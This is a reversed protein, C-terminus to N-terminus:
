RRAPPSVRHRQSDFVAPDHIDLALGLSILHAPKELSVAIFIGPQDSALHRQSQALKALGIGIRHAAPLFMVSRHMEPDPVSGIPPSDHAHQSELSNDLFDSHDDVVRHYAVVSINENSPARVAGSILLPILEIFRLLDTTAAMTTKITTKQIDSRTRASIRLNVM